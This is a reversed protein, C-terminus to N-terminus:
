FQMLHYNSPCLFEKSGGFFVSLWDGKHKKCMVKNDEKSISIRKHKELLKPAMPKHLNINDQVCLFSECGECWFIAAEKECNECVSSSSLLLNCSAALKSSSDKQPNPQPDSNQFPKQCEFCQSSEQKISLFCDKCLSHGCSLSFNEPKLNHCKPCESNKLFQILSPSNNNEEM